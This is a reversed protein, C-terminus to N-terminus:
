LRRLSFIASIQAANIPQAPSLSDVIETQYVEGNSLTVSFLLTDNPKFKITQTMGDGDIKVFASILPNQVDYIPARFTVNTANPNNSYIVNKLGAGSASVNSLQVYVYPYFAIRGGEGVVLTSNPLIINLLQIEYCVMEQQSVLSGTYVFPYLNDFSFSMIEILSNINPDASFPPYINLTLVGGTYNSEVISTSQNLPPTLNFNKDYDYKGGNVPLIRVSYGKYFNKITSSTGSILLTSKNSGTLLKISPSNSLFPAQNRISFNDTLDWNIPGTNESINGKTNLFLLNTIDNYGAIKRYQKKTENYLLYNNYGDRQLRGFPVFIYPNLDSTLDTPDYIKFNHWYSSTPLSSSLTAQAIDKTLTSYLYTFETIRRVVPIVTDIDVLVTGIYYNYIQQITNLGCELTITLLDSSYKIDETPGPPSSYAYLIIGTLNNSGGITFNNSTWAELPVSLSVPDLANYINKRGTQSIPVEFKGPLPWDNRNRYTSDIELYRTNSM